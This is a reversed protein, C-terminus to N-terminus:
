QRALNPKGGRLIYKQIKGTSTKPLETVFNFEHPVKFHALHERCFARLEAAEATAGARLVVFAVPTEGWKEHPKGVVAVEQVAKHRLLTGEVEISSINEGGSIIVDKWRDRIELYGDPHVVAADGSHFWGGRMAQATAEPDNYYGLMVAHGRMVVEGLTLGDHPVERNQDDVVLVEGCAIAEVGQRAKLLAVEKRGLQADEPRMEAVTVIPSVETLGYVHTITWGFEGEIREITAAAPPAGATLVRVGRPIARHYEAPSNAIGILITPAACFISVREERLLEFIRKTEPRNLCVHTGGVATVTWVFCWGNVHFMPLTWLYRDGSDMHTHCLRGMINLYLNRHTLMVGKPRATTGSTYNISLVSHEDIVPLDTVPRAAALRAEYSIWDPKGGTFAVFHKVGPVAARIQDVLDLYEADVCVVKAGSHNLIYVFDDTSLRYNIPVIVAGLQPIAYFAELNAHSNPAICAVRDGPGVGLERLVTSWRDCRDLFQEYTLRTQGDVVAERHPYVRRARRAFELPTLPSEM